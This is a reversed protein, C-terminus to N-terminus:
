IPYKSKAATNFLPTIVGLDRPTPPLQVCPFDPPFANMEYFFFFFFSLFLLPPLICAHYFYQFTPPSQLQAEPLGLLLRVFPFPCRLMLSRREDQGGWWGGGPTRRPGGRKGPRRPRPTRRRELLALAKEGGPEPAGPAPLCAAWGGVRPLDPLTHGAPPPASAAPLLAEAGRCVAGAVPFPKPVCALFFKLFHRRPRLDRTPLPPSLGPSLLRRYKGGPSGFRERRGTVLAPSTM